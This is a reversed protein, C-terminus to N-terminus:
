KVEERPSWFVTASNHAGGQTNLNHNCGVALTAPLSLSYTTRSSHLYSLFPQKHPLVDLCPYKLSPNEQLGLSAGSSLQLIGPHHPQTGPLEWPLSLSYTTRSPHIYFLFPKTRLPDDSNTPSIRPPIKKFSTFM